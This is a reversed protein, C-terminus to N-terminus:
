PKWLYYFGSPLLTAAEPLDLHLVNAKPSPLTDMAYISGTYGYPRRYQITEASPANALKRALVLADELLGVDDVLGLNKAADGSYVRGDTIRKFAETQPDLHRNSAVVNKFRAYYEDVIGQLIAADEPTPDRFPSGIDKHAASKYTEPQIGLKQLTGTLNVTEFIVGISGVLSTPQAVIKDAACSVYYAGSADLELASAVVPKHTKAKFRQVIQYMADSASVTGGPSNVRLVVAKVKSDEAAKNMEQVFRSMVNETPQLLGGSKANVLAGEVEILAIKDPFWSSSGQVVTEDLESSGGVPTILFSPTGCGTVGLVACALMARVTHRM